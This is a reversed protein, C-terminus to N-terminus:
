LMLYVVAAAHAREDRATIDAILAFYVAGAGYMGVGMLVFVVVAVTVMVANVDAALRDALHPALLVATATLIAGGVIYPARHRGLIPRQDSRHGIALAFPAALNYSALLVAVVVLSIGLEVKMVRNLVGLVLVSAM